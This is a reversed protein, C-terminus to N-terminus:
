EEGVLGRAKLMPQIAAKRGTLLIFQQNLDKTNGVSLIHKRFKDGNARTLGGNKEFWDIADFGLMESWLYAYYGASYNNAWIHQFYPSHYRPPVENVLLGSSQLADREFELAPKFDNENTVSHWKMDLMAAAVLETVNYGENFTSSKKIKAVLDAPIVKGTQHHVAYNNLVRPDSAWHENIQSPFEVFDRPTSTGSISPYKQSAFLGHISHGFEHFLTIVDDWSILSPRGPAPKQYNFVNYIVPKQNNIYSQRNFSSMWAGGAKNDRTYFDLYYIAM